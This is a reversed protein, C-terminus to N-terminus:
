GSPASAHSPQVQDANLEKGQAEAGELDAIRNLRKRAARLRKAVALAVPAAKEADTFQAEGKAIEAKVAADSGAAPASTEDKVKRPM